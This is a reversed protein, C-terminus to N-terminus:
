RQSTMWRPSRTWAGDLSPRRRRRWRMEATHLVAATATVAVVENRPVVTASQLVVALLVDVAANVTRTPLRCLATTTPV